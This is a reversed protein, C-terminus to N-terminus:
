KTNSLSHDLKVISVSLFIRNLECIHEQLWSALWAGCMVPRSSVTGQLWFHTGPTWSPINAGSIVTDCDFGLTHIDVWTCVQTTVGKHGAIEPM